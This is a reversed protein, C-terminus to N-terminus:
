VQKFPFFAKELQSEAEKVSTERSWKFNREGYFPQSKLEMLPLYGIDVMLNDTPRNSGYWELDKPNCPHPNHYLSLEPIDFM